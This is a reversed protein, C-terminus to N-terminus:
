ETLWELWFTTGGKSRTDSSDAQAFYDFVGANILDVAGMISTLPTRLEHSVAATFEQKM